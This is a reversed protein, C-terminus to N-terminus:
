NWRQTVAGVILAAVLVVGVVLALCGVRSSYGARRGAESQQARYVWPRMQDSAESWVGLRERKADEESALFGLARLGYDGRSHRLCYAYGQRVMARNISNGRGQERWYVLGIARAYRDYAFVEILLEGRRDLLHALAAQAALGFKQRAEPADIGYLRVRIPRSFLGTERVVLSDGDVIREVHVSIPERSRQSM